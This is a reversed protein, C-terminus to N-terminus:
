SFATTSLEPLLQMSDTAGLGAAYTLLKGLHDHDTDRILNEVVVRRETKEEFYVLDAKYQGVVAEIAKLRLDMGLAEGLLDPNEALWLTFDKAEDKWIDRVSVPLLVGVKEM